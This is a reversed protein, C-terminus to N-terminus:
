SYGLLSMVSFVSTTFWESGDVDVVTDALVILATELWSYPLLKFSWISM